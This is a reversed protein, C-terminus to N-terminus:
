SVVIKIERQCPHTRPPSCGANARGTEGHECEMEKEGYSLFCGRGRWGRERVAAGACGRVGVRGARGAGGGPPTRVPRRCPQPRLRAARRARVSGAVAPRQGAARGAARVVPARRRAVPRHAGWQPRPELPHPRNTPSPTRRRPTPSTPLIRPPRWVRRRLATLEPVLLLLPHQSELPPPAHDHSLSLSM